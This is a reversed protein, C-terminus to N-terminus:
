LGSRGKDTLVGRLFVDIICFFGSTLSLGLAAMKPPNMIARVAGLLIELMLHVEMDERIIGAKRGETLFRGLHRQVMKARHAEVLEFMGPVERQIDRLFPPKIEEVHRQFCALMRQLAIALDAAPEAGIQELQGDIEQFKQRLAAEVLATKSAFHAYLTKKSMGLEVALDDMTVGRLGHTFFHQRAGAVIRDRCASEPTLDKKHAAPEPLSSNASM